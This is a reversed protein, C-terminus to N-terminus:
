YLLVIESDECCSVKRVLCPLTFCDAMCALLHIVGATAPDNAAHKSFKQDATPPAQVERRIREGYVELAVDDPSLEHSACRVRSAEATSAPFLIAGM